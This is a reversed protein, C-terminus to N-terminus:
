IYGTCGHYILCHHWFTGNDANNELFMIANDFYYGAYQADMTHIVTRIGGMWRAVPVMRIGNNAIPNTIAKM